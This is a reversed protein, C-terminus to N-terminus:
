RIDDLIHQSVWLLCYANLYSFVGRVLMLAPISACLLCIQWLTAHGSQIPPMHVPMWAPIKLMRSSGDPFVLPVVQKILLVLGGNAVGFLAGFLVGFLFRARYPKMYSALRMYPERSVRLFEGLSMKSIDKRSIKKSSM